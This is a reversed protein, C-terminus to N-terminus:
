VKKKNTKKKFRKKQMDKLKQIEERDYDFQMELRNDKSELKIKNILDVAERDESIGIKAMALIGKVADYFLRTQEPDDFIGVGDMSFDDAFAFSAVAKELSQLGKLKKLEDDELQMKKKIYESKAIVWSANAYRTESLLNRLEGEFRRNRYNDTKKQVWDKVESISGAVLLENGIPSFAMEEKSNVYLNYGGFKEKTFEKEKDHKLLFDDFNQPYFHGKMVIIVSPEDIEEELTMAFFVNDINQDIDLIESMKELSDREMVLDMDEKFLEFFRSNKMSQVDLYTIATAKEPLLAAQELVTKSVKNRSLDECGVLVLILLLLAAVQKLGPYFNSIFYKM